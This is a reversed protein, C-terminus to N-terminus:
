YEEEWHEINIVPSTETSGIAQSVISQNYNITLPQWLSNLDISYAIVGGNITLSYTSNSVKFTNGAYILGNLNATDSFDGFTISRKSLLGCPNGGIQNISITPNAKWFPSGISGITFNGDMVLIGNVVLSDGKNLNVNGQVYTIGNFELSPDDKILHEFQSQTYVTDARSLYSNVNDSDFDIEPMAVEEPMPPYNGAAISGANINSGWAININGLASVDGDVNLTSFFSLNMKDFSYLNSDNINLVSGRLKISDMSYFSVLEELFPNLSKYVLTKVVRRSTQGVTAITSTAIIEARALDTNRVSVSYSDSAEFVGNRSISAQWDPDTIFSNHWDPDYTLKWMAEHIGAEALYYTKTALQHSATIKIDTNIFDLFYFALLLLMTVIIVALIVLFGKPQHPM